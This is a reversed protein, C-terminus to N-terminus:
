YSIHTEYRHSHKISDTASSAPISISKLPLQVVNGCTTCFAINSERDTFMMKGCRPCASYDDSKYGEYRRAAAPDVQKLEAAAWMMLQATDTKEIVYRAIKEAIKGANDESAGAKTLSAKLKSVDFQELEGSRKHVRVLYSGGSHNLDGTRM